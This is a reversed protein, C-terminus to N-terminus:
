RESSLRKGGNCLNGCPIGDHNGDLSAVGCYNFYFLAEDCSAMQSCRRKKGCEMDYLMVPARRGFPSAPSSQHAGMASPHLKRWQWPAQPSAQAWLGRRSQRADKELGIYTKDTHYHSYEWAMGRRVQEQNVSRGDVSILGVVRGYQDVAQTEIQVVKRGVLELLSDRSQMGFAQDKEPADINALRIKIRQSGRVGRSPSAPPSGAAESGGERLVMVTDGDMVAIVKASFTEAGANLAICCCLALLSRM